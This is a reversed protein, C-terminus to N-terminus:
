EKPVKIESNIIQINKKSFAEYKEIINQDEMVGVLVFYRQNYYNLKNDTYGIEGTNRSEDFYLNM